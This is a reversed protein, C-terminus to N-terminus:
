VDFMLRSLPIPKTSPMIAAKTNTATISPIDDCILASKRLVRDAEFIASKVTTLDVIIELTSQPFVANDRLVVGNIAVLQVVAPVSTGKNSLFLLTIIEFLSVDFVVSPGQVKRAM